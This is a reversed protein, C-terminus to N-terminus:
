ACMMVSGSPKKLFVCGPMTTEASTVSSAVEPFKTPMATDAGTIM